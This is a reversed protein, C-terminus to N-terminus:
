DLIEFCDEDYDAEDDRKEDMIISVFKAVLPIYTALFVVMAAIGVTRKRKESVGVGMLIGMSCLCTKLLSVDWIDMTKLYRDASRLLLKM